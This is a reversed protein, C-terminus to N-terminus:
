VLLWQLYWVAHYIGHLEGVENVYDSLIKWERENVYILMFDEVSNTAEIKHVREDDRAQVSRFSKVLRVSVTMNKAVSSFM